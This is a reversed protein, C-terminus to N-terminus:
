GSSVGGPKVTVSSMAHENQLEM